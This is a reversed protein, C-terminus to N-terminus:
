NRAYKKELFVKIILVVSYVIAIIMSLKGYTVELFYNLGFLPTVFLIYLPFQINSFMDLITNNLMVDKFVTIIYVLIGSWIAAVLFVNNRKSNSNSNRIQYNSFIIITAFALLSVAVNVLGIKSDPYKVSDLLNVGIATIYVVLVHKFNIKM